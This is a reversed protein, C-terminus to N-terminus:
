ASSGSGASSGKSARCALGSARTVSVGWEAHCLGHVHTRSEWPMQDLTSRTRWPSGANCRTHGVGATARFRSPRVPRLAPVRAVHHVNRTALALDHVLGTSAILLNLDPILNGQPCLEARVRAFTFAVPDTVDPLRYGSHFRRASAAYADPDPTGYAGERVEGWTVM